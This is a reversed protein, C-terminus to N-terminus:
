DMRYARRLKENLTVTMSIFTNPRSGDRGSWGEEDSTWQAMLDFLTGSGPLTTVKGFLADSESDLMVLKALGFSETRANITRQVAQDWTPTADTGEQTLAASYRPVPDALPTALTFITYRQFAVTDRFFGVYGDLLDNIMNDADINTDDSWKSFFGSPNPGSGPTWARTPLLAVHPGYASAYEVKVFAPAISEPM